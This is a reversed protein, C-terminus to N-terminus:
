SYGTKGKVLYPQNDPTYIICFDLRSKPLFFTQQYFNLHLHLPFIYLLPFILFVDKQTVIKKNLDQTYILLANRNEPFHIEFKYSHPPPAQFFVFYECYRSRYKDKFILSSKLFSLPPDCTIIRPLIAAWTSLLVPHEMCQTWFWPVAVKPCSISYM